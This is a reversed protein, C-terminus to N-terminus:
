SPILAALEELREPGEGPMLRFTVEDPQLTLLDALQERCEAETGVIAYYEVLSDPVLDVHSGFRSRGTRYSIERRISRVTEAYESPIEGIWHTPSRLAVYAVSPKVKNIAVQRDPHPSATLLLNIRVGRPDRGAAIAGDRVQQIKRAYSEKQAEGPMLVGDTLEGALHVMRPGWVATHIPIRRQVSPVSYRITDGVVVEEGRMLTRLRELTERFQAITPTPYGLANASGHGGNGFGLIARGGSLDDLTSIANVSISLDRTSPNSVGTALLLTQTNLAAVTLAVYPDKSSLPTDPIWLTHFGLREAAQALEAMLKVRDGPRPMPNIGFKTM